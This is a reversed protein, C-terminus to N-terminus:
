RGRCARIAADYAAAGTELEAQTAGTGDPVNLGALPLGIVECVERISSRATPSSMDLRFAWM